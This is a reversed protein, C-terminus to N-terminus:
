APKPMARNPPTNLRTAVRWSQAILSGSDGPNVQIVIDDKGEGTFDGPAKPGGFIKPGLLVAGLVVAILLGLLAFTRRRGGTQDARLQARTPRAAGIAEPQARDPEEHEPM